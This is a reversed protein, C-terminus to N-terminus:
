ISFYQECEEITEPITGYKTRESNLIHDPLKYKRAVNILAELAGVMFINYLLKLNNKDTWKLIEM